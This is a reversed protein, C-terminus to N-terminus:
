NPWTITPLGAIVSEVTPLPAGQQVQNMINIAYNFVSDRWAIFATAESKWINNTSMVYSACSVGDAYQKSQATSDIIEQIQTMCTNQLTNMDFTAQYTSAEALLDSELPRPIGAVNWYGILIDNDPQRFNINGAEVQGPYKLQCIEVLNITM